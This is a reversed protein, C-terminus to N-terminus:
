LLDIDLSLIELFHRLLFEEAEAGLTVDAEATAGDDLAGAELLVIGPFDGEEVCVKERVGGAFVRRFAHLALGRDM